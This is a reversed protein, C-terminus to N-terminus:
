LIQLAETHKIHALINLIHDRAELRLIELAYLQRLVGRLTRGLLEGHVVKMIQSYIIWLRTDGNDNPDGTFIPVPILNALDAPWYIPLDVILIGEKDRNNMLRLEKVTLDGIMSCHERGFVLDVVRLEGAFTQIIDLAKKSDLTSFIMIEFYEAVLKLFEQARGRLIFKIGYQKSRYLKYVKQDVKHSDYVLHIINEELGLVMSKRQSKAYKPNPLNIRHAKITQYEFNIAALTEMEREFTELIFSEYKPRSYINERNPSKLSSITPVKQQPNLVVSGTRRHKGYKHEKMNRLRLEEEKHIQGTRQFQYKKKRGPSKSKRRKGGRSKKESDEEDRIKTGSNNRYTSVSEKIRRLYNNKNHNSSMQGVSPFSDHRKHEFLDIGVQKNPYWKDIESDKVHKEM